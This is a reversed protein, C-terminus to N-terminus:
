LYVELYCINNVKLTYIEIIIFFSIEVEYDMDVRKVM